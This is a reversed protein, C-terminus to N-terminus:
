VQRKAEQLEKITIHFTKFLDDVYLTRRRVGTQVTGAAVLLSGVISSVPEPLAILTLGVKVLTSKNETRWLKKTTRAERTTGSIAQLLDVYSESLENAVTAVTKAEETKVQAV